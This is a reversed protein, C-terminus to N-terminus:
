NSSEVGSAASQIAAMRRGASPHTLLSFPFGLVRRGEMRALVGRAAQPDYGASRMVQAAWKDAEIERAPSSGPHNLAVHAQEHAIVFALEAESSQEVLGRTLYVTGNRAYANYGGSQTVEVPGFCSTEEAGDYVSCLALSAAALKALIAAIM